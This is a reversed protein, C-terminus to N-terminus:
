FEPADAERSPMDGSISPWDDTWVIKDLLLNRGTTANDAVSFGHYLFWDNGASDKVIRANHGPGKYPSSSASGRVVSEGVVLFGATGGSIESNNKARYPGKLNTSRGVIVRYTSSLGDCCGGISVFLYYYGNRKHIYPAEMQNNTTIKTKTEPKYSLGDDNLEVCHIGGGYSGWFLYKKGDDDEFYNPDISNQVNVDRSDFLKGRDTYPGEPKDAVAVGIGADMTNGGNGAMESLSYYLVYKGNIFNLDPAWVSGALTSHAYWNPRNSATFVTGVQKWDMLDNSHYISTIRNVETSSAYFDNEGVKLVTPDPFPSRILPNRFRNLVTVNIEAKISLDRELWVAVVATGSKGSTLAVKDSNATL